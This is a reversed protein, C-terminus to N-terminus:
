KCCGEKKVLPNHGISLWLGAYALVVMLGSILILFFAFSLASM